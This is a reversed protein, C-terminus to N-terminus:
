TWNKISVSVQPMKLRGKEKQFSNNPFLVTATGIPGSSSFHGCYQIRREIKDTWPWWMESCVWSYGSGPHDEKVEFDYNKTGGGRAVM